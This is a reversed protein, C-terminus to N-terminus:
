NSEELADELAQELNRLPKWGCIRNIHSIEALQSPRDVKRRRSDVSKIEIKEGFVKACLEVLEEVSYEVGSGINAVELSKTMKMNALSFLAEAVDKVHIYDRCPFLNGLEITRVGDNLQKMIAPILHPNTEHSGAVNFLRGIVVESKQRLIFLELLEEAFLKTKGYIDLAQINSSEDLSDEILPDYIAGTSAFVIRPIISQNSCATIISQTGEVNTRIAMGPNQECLPIYHIAALHIVVGPKALSISDSLLKTDLIDGRIIKLNPHNILFEEKGSTFNDYVYVRWSSDLCVKVLHSGVFGAGGTIFVTKKLEDM